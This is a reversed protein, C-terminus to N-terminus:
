FVSVVAPLWILADSATMFAWTPMGRGDAATVHATADIVKLM